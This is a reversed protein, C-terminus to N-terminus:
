KTRTGTGTKVNEKYKNGTTTYTDYTETGAARSGYTNHQQSTSRNASQSIFDYFTYTYYGQSPRGEIHNTYSSLSDGDPMFTENNENICKQKNRTLTNAVGSKPRQDILKSILNESSGVKRIYSRM